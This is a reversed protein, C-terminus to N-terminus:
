LYHFIKFNNYEM